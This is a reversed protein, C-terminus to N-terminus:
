GLLTKKSLTLEDDMSALKTSKRGKRKIRLLRDIKNQEIEAVTPGAPAEKVATQQVDYVPKKKRQVHKRIFGGM